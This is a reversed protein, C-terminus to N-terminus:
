DPRITSEINGEQEEIMSEFEKVSSTKIGTLKTFLGQGTALVKYEPSNVLESKLQNLEERSSTNEIRSQFDELIKTKLYDGKIDQFEEKLGAFKRSDVEFSHKRGELPNTARGEYNNSVKFSVPNLLAAEKISPNEKLFKSILLERAKVGKMQDLTFAMDQKKAQSPKDGKTYSQITEYIANLVQFQAAADPSPNKDPHVKLMAKRFNSKLSSANLLQEELLALAADFNEKKVEPIPM